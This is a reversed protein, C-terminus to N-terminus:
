SKEQLKRLFDRPSCGEIKKFVKSFYFASEFGLEDAIEYIKLQNDLMKAKALAIKKTTIYENFGINKTKKFLISLYNPSISFLSAVENLSLRDTIHADLYHQIEQIMHNKYTKHHSRLLSCIGDRFLVIWRIIHETQTQKYISNYGDVDDIFVEDLVEKSDPLLSLTMYLINCAADIAQLYMRPHEECLQILTNLTSELSLADYSEFALRINNKFIGLNFTNHSPLNSNDLQDKFFVIPENVRCMSQIQRADQFSDSLSLPESCSRGVSAFITINFYKKVMDLSANLASTIRTKQLSEDTDNNSFIICFRKTDLTVVYCDVQKEMLSRVMQIASFYLNLLKEQSIDNNEFDVITCLATTYNLANFELKLENAQLQFQSKNEFLNNLLRIMFKEYFYDMHKAVPVELTERRKLVLQVAKQLSETLIEPTIDLKVLYDLAQYKMAEKILSFEEYSTLFIFVPYTDDLERCTKLLELGTMIPMKIDTLVIEPQEEEIIKLAQKGNFASQCIEIGLASYNLMSKIGIQVLPEDDVILLKIM